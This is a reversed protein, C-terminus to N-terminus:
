GSRGFLSSLSEKLINVDCDFSQNEVIEGSRDRSCGASRRALPLRAVREPAMKGIQQAQQAARRARRDSRWKLYAQQSKGKLLELTGADLYGTAPLAERQQLDAIALRTGPGFVGDIGNPDHGLLALRLQANWRERKSLGLDQEVAPDAARIVGQPESMEVEAVELDQPAESPIEDPSRVQANPSPSVDKSVLYAGGNLTLLVTSEVDKVIVPTAPEPNEVNAPLVAAADHGGSPDHDQVSSLAVETSTESVVVEADDADAANPTTPANGMSPASAVQAVNPRSQASMAPESLSADDVNSVPKSMAVANLQPSESGTEDGSLHPMRMTEAVLDDVREPDAAQEVPLIEIAAIREGNPCFQVNLGSLALDSIPLRLESSSIWGSPEQSLSRLAGIIEAGNSILDGESAHEVAECDSVPVVLSELDDVPGQSELDVAVADLILRRVSQVESEETRLNDGILQGLLGLEAEGHETATAALVMEPYHFWRDARAADRPSATKPDSAFPGSKALLDRSIKSEPGPHLTILVLPTALAICFM